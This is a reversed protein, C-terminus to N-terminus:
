KIIAFKRYTTNDVIVTYTGASYNELSLSIIQEYHIHQYLIRVNADFIQIYRQRNDAFEITLNGSTPNPYIKIAENEKELVPINSPPLSDSVEITKLRLSSQCKRASAWLEVNYKGAIDYQTMGDFTYATDGNGFSWMYEAPTGPPNVTTANEFTIPIGISYLSEINFDSIIEITFITDKGMYRVECIEETNGIKVTKYLTYFPIYHGPKTYTTYQPHFFPSTGIRTPDVVGNTNVVISDPVYEPESPVTFFFGVTLPACSDTPTYSVSGQPGAIDIYAEKLMTDRCGNEDQAVLLVDYKGANLYIHSPNKYRNEDPSGKIIYPNGSLTDGFTWYLDIIKSDGTSQDNFTITRGLIGQDDQPCAFINQQTTFNAIPRTVIVTDEYQASCGKSQHTIPDVITVTLRVVVKNTANPLDYAHAGSGDTPRDSFGFYVSTDGDGWDWEYKLYTNRNYDVHLVQSSNIFAKEEKNCISGITGGPNRFSVYINNLLVQDYFLSDSTCGYENTIKLSLDYLNALDSQLTPNQDTSTAVSGIKWEWDTIRTNQFPALSYSKDQLYLYGGNNVCITDKKNNFLLSDTSSVFAPISQPYVNVTISATEAAANNWSVSLEITYTGPNNFLHSISDNTSPTYTQIVTENADKITWIRNTINAQSPSNDILIIESNTVGALACKNTHITEIVPAQSFGVHLSLCLVSFIFNRKM